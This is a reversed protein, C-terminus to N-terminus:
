ILSIFIGQIINEDELADYLSQLILAEEEIAIASSSSDITELHKYLYNYSYIYM